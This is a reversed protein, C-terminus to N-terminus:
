GWGVKVREGVAWARGVAADFRSKLLVYEPEGPPAASVWFAHGTIPCAPDSVM